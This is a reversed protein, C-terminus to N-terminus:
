PCVQPAPWPQCLGATTCEFGVGCASTCSDGAEAPLGVCTGSECGAEDRCNSGQPSLGVYILQCAGGVEIRSSCTQTPRDCYDDRRLCADNAFTDNCVAGHAAKAQCHGNEAVDIPSFELACFYGSPCEGQAECPDGPGPRTQCSATAGAQRCLLGDACQYDASCTAGVGSPATCVGECCRSDCSVQACIGSRCDANVICLETEDRLGRFV